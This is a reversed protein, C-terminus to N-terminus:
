PKDCEKAKTFAASDLIGLQVCGRYSTVLAMVTMEKYFITHRNEERTYLNFVGGESVLLEARTEDLGGVCLTAKLRNRGVVASETAAVMVWRMKVEKCSVKPKPVELAEDMDRIGISAVIVGLNELSAVFSPCLSALCRSLSCRLVVVLANLWCAGEVLGKVIIQTWGICKLSEQKRQHYGCKSWKRAGM